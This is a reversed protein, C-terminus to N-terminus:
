KGKQSPKTANLFNRRDKLIKRAPKDGNRSRLRANNKRHGKQNRSKNKLKRIKKSGARLRAHRSRKAPRRSKQRKRQINKNNRKIPKKLTENGKIGIPKPAPPRSVAKDAQRLPKKKDDDKKPVVSRKYRLHGPYNSLVKKVRPQNDLKHDQFYPTNPQDTHVKPFVTYEKDGREKKTLITKPKIYKGSNNIQYLGPKVKKPYSKVVVKKANEDIFDSLVYSLSILFIYVLLKM